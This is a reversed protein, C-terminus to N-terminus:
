ASIGPTIKSTCRVPGDVPMGVRVECASRSLTANRDCPSVLCTSETAPYDHLLAELQTIRREVQRLPQLRRHKHQAIKSKPM